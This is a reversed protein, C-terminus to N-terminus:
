PQFFTFHERDTVNQIDLLVEKSSLNTDEMMFGDLNYWPVM